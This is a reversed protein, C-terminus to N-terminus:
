GARRIATGYDERSRRPVVNSVFLVRPAQFMFGDRGEAIGGKRIIITQRGDAIAQCVSSWEKFGAREM